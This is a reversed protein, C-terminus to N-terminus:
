GDLRGRIGRGNRDHSRPGEANDPASRVGQENLWRVAENRDACLRFDSGAFIRGLQRGALASANVLALESRPPAEIALERLAQVVDQSQITAASVDYLLQHPGRGTALRTFAQRLLAEFQKVDGMSAFGTLTVILRNRSEDVEVHFAM